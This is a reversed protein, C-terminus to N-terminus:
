ESQCNIEKEKGKSDFERRVELTWNKGKNKKEQYFYEAAHCQGTWQL